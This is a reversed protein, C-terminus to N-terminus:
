TIKCQCLMSKWLFPYRGAFRFQIDTAGETRLLKTLTPVSFFKIHGVDWLVTFHPDMKGSLSLALNKWYGHFPTTLIISGGPKLFSKAQRILQKPDFLHEIV